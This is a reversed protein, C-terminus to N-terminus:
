EKLKQLIYVIRGSSPIASVIEAGENLMGQLAEVQPENKPNVSLIYFAYM